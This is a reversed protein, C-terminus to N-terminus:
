FLKQQNVPARHALDHLAHRSFDGTLAFRDRGDVILNQFLLFGEIALVVEGDIPLSEILIEPSQFSLADADVKLM